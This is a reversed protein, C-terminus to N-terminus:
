PSDLPDIVRRSVLSKRPGFLATGIRVITSGEEIAVGFDGSMGMSLEPLSLGTRASAEDRLQRLRAFYPRAEEPDEAYPAMTMLGTLRLRALGNVTELLPPLGEPAVGFKSREGSVNVEILVELNRGCKEAEHDLSLAIGPSDVTQVCAFLAAAHRAKNGQLHGIFHWEASSPCLPIKARAEQVKNEGFLELGARVAEAVEEPLRTKTVGLLRVSSPDRGSRAAAAGMQGLVRGLRGAFDEM